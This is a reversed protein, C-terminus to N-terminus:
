VKKAIKNAATDAHVPLEVYFTSGTGEGESVAWIRGQHAHVIEEAVYLGLGLGETYIKNIDSARSFKKFIKELTSKDMGIGTDSVSLVVKTTDPTKSLLVTIERQPAYKIANDILSAVVQRIKDTDAIIFYDEYNKDTIVDLATGINKASTMMDNTVKLVLKEMDMNVFSYEVDGSEINSINMFDSITTILRKSSEFIKVVADHVLPPAEGFSGDIIMSSYGKIATLPDRLHHSAIALFETKKKDLITLRNKTEDIEYLLRAIGDRSKIERRINEMLFFSALIIVITLVTNWIVGLFSDLFFFRVFLIFVTILSLFEVAIIEISWFNYKVLIFGVGLTSTAVSLYGFLFLDYINSLGPYLFILGSFIAISATFVALMDRAQLKFIGSSLRYKKFLSWFVTAFFVIQYLFYLLYGRGFFFGERINNFVGEKILFGPYFIAFAIIAPPTFVALYHWFSASTGKVVPVDLFLFAVLPMMGASLYLVMLATHLVSPSAVRSFALAVGGWLLVGTFFLFFKSRRKTRDQGYILVGFLFLVLASMAIAWQHLSFRSVLEIITALM